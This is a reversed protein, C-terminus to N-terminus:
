EKYFADARLVYKVGDELKKGEHWIKHEFMLVDGKEPIIHVFDKPHSPGYPMLVTAGTECNNLYFLVTVQSFLEGDEYSGDKHPKFFEGPVYKYYRMVKGLCQFRAKNLEYPFDNVLKYQLQNLIFQRVLEDEFVQRSNNRINEMLREEKYYQVNAKEFGDDEARTILMNCYEPPLVGKVHKFWM